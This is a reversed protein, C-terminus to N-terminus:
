LENKLDKGPTRYQCTSARRTLQAPKSGTPDTLDSRVSSMEFSTSVATVDMPCTSYTLTRRTHISLNLLHLLSLMPASSRSVTKTRWPATMCCCCSLTSCSNSPSSHIPISLVKVKMEPRIATGAPPFASPFKFLWNLFLRWKHGLGVKKGRRVRAAVTQCGAGTKGLDKRRPRHRREKTGHKKREGEVTARAGSENVRVENLLGGQM